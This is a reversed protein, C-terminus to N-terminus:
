RLMSKAQVSATYRIAALIPTATNGSSPASASVNNLLASAASFFALAPRRGIDTKRASFSQFRPEATEAQFIPQAPARVLFFEHKVVLGLYVSCAALQGPGLCQDSPIIRTDPRVGGPRKM